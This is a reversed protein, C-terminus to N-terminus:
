QMLAMANEIPAALNLNQGKEYTGTVVGIVEGRDNLLPGGSSGGSVPATFLLWQVKETEWRGCINGLSVLNKLGFQSGIAVTKEGRLPAEKSVILPTLGTDEPLRCIAVDADEDADIASDIRFTVGNDCEAIMYEMNEIVHAATVLVMPDFAAFGTGTGIKSDHDNYVTLMVVSAAAQEMRAPDNSFSDVGQEMGAPDDASVDTGEPTSKVAKAGTLCLILIFGITIIIYLARDFKVKKMTAKM